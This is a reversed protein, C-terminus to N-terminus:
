FKCREHLLCPSLFSRASCLLYFCLLLLYDLIITNQFLMLAIDFTASPNLLILVLCQGPIYCCLLKGAVKVFTKWYISLVSQMIQLSSHPSHFQSVSYLCNNAIFPGLITVIFTISLWIVTVSNCKLKTKHTRIDNPLELHLNLAM